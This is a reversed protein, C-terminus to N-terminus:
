AENSDDGKELERVTGEIISSEDPMFEDAGANNSRYTNDGSWNNSNAYNNNQAYNQQNKDELEKKKGKILMVGVYIALAAFFIQPIDNSIIYLGDCSIDFSNFIDEIIRMAVKWLSVAGILILVYAVLKNRKTKEMNGMFKWTSSDLNVVDEQKRFEEDSMGALNHVHFFGYFWVVVALLMFFSSNLWGGLGCIAFFLLMLATGQKMFGMYMEGAGPLFSFIFRLLGNRKKKM